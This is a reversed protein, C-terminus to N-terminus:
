RRWPARRGRHTRRWGASCRRGHRRLARAPSSSGRLEAGAQQAQGAEVRDRRRGAGPAEEGASRGAARRRKPQSRRTPFWSACWTPGSRRSAGATSTAGPCSGTSTPLIMSRTGFIVSSTSTTPWPPTSSMGGPRPSRRCSATTRPRSVADGPLRTAPRTGARARTAALRAAAGGRHAPLARRLPRADGAGGSRHRRRADRSPEPTGGARCGGRLPHWSARLVSANFVEMAEPTLQLMLAQDRVVDRLLKRVNRRRAPTFDELLKGFLEDLLESGAVLGGFRVFFSGMWLLAALPLHGFNLVYITSLSLLQMLQQGQLTTFFSALPTGHHPTSVTVVTRVRAALREVDLATPLGVGPATLLRVDLGGSSHGILHLPAAGRPATAHM